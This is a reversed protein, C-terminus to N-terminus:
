VHKLIIRGSFCPLWTNLSCNRNTKAYQNNRCLSSVPTITTIRQGKLACTHTHTNLTFDLQWLINRLMSIQTYDISKFSTFQVIIPYLFFANSKYPIYFKSEVIDYFSLYHSFVIRRQSRPSHYEISFLHFIFEYLLMFM